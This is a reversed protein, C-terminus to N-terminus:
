RPNPILIGNKYTAIYIPSVVEGSPEFVLEGTVGSFTRGLIAQKIKSPESSKIESVVQSLILIADYTYAADYSPEKRFRAQYEKKFNRGREGSLGLAFAPVTLHYSAREFQVALMALEV